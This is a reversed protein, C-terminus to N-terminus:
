RWRALLLKDMKDDLKDVKKDLDDFRAEMRGRWASRQDETTIAVPPKPKGTVHSLIEAPTQGSLYAIGIIAALIIMMADKVRRYFPDHSFM